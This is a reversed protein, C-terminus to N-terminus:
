RRGAPRLCLSTRRHFDSGWTRFGTTDVHIKTPTYFGLGFNRGAGHRQWFGCLGRTSAPAADFEIDLAHNGLHRSRRSGGECTNFAADRWASVVRAGPILGRARLDRVLALTPVMADWQARAPVAFPEVGCSQWRRGRRLLQPMPVVDGVGAATLHARYEAVATAHGAGLWREFPDPVSARQCAALGAFATLTGLLVAASRSARV